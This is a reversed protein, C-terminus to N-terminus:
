ETEPTCVGGHDHLTDGILAPASTDFDAENSRRVDPFIEASFDPPFHL